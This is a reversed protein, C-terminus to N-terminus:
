RKLNYNNGDARADLYHSDSRHYLQKSWQSDESPKHFAARVKQMIYSIFKNM